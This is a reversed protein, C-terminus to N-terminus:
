TFSRSPTSPRDPRPTKTAIHRLRNRSSSALPMPQLGPGTLDRESGEAQAISLGQETVMRVAEHKFERTYQKREATM